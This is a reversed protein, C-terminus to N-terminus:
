LKDYVLILIGLFGLCLGLIRNRTLREKLWVRAVLA